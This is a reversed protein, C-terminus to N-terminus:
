KLQDFRVRSWDDHGRPGVIKVNDELEGASTRVGFDQTNRGSTEMDHMRTHPTQHAPTHRKHTRTNTAGNEPRSRGQPVAHERRALQIDKSDKRDRSAVTARTGICVVYYVLDCTCATAEAVALKM